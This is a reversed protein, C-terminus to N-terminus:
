DQESPQSVGTFKFIQKSIFRDTPRFVYSAAATMLSYFFMEENDKAVFLVLVVILVITMLNYIVWAVKTYYVYKQNLNDTMNKAKRCHRKNSHWYLEHIGCMLFVLPVYADSTKM